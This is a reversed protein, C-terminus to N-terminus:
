QGGKQDSGRTAERTMEDRVRDEIEREERRERPTKRDLPTVIAPAAANATPSPEPTQRARAAASPREYVEEVRGSILDASQGVKLKVQRGKEPERVVISDTSGRTVAVRVGDPTEGDTPKGNVWITTEGDSRSVVGNIIVNRNAPPKPKVVTVAALAQAHIRNRRATDLAIRQEPTLFLRGLQAEEAGAPAAVTGLMLVCLWRRM